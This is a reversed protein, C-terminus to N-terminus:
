MILYLTIGRYRKYNDKLLVVTEIGLELTSLM